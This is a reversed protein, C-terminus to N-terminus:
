HGLLWLPINGTASEMKDHLQQPNSAVQVFTTCNCDFQKVFSNSAIHVGEAMM